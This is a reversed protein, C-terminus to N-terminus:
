CDVVAGFDPWSSAKAVELANAAIKQLRGDDKAMLLSRLAAELAPEGIAADYLRGAERGDLLEATMGVKPVVAPLGYSLALLLSGSTLIKQYPYASIDAARFFLQLESDEIFRGVYLVRSREFPSLGAGDLPNFEAKGALVLRCHPRDALLRRFAAVLTEVGKYPRIQGTFLIVDEEKKIGLSNRAAERGVYDPYAGLYNGHRSIRVKKTPVPFSISVEALSAESHLHVVHACAAIRTSLAAEVQPFLTDHSVTNHVTWILRGGKWIFKELKEAFADAAQKAAKADTIGIFLFNLWHLHFTVNAAATAKSDIVRLAADLDGAVVEVRQRLKGYLLKQYPNSRSYDPWFLVMSTEPRLKYTVNRPKQSDPVHLDWFRSLGQRKLSESQVRHTNTTQHHENVHSTNEGHWRRQYLTEDIHHFEGVESLKLFMDYDVGNVIDERFHSTRAWAQRRFMRFHHAISTVMMKERSFVPWSYEDQTYQGAADIRECSSYACVVAPHEDLYTMLRQVAGPKLCDDSDLQGIYLSNSMRVAANSAYGIGGNPHNSWRVRNEDSYLRELLALTGDPSGDIAICVELDAVDQSLISEVAREIYKAANYAPVYISVKAVESGTALQRTLHSPCLARYLATDADSEREDAFGELVSVCLPVFWAGRVFARYAMEKAALFSSSFRIDPLGASRLLSASVVMNLGAVGNFPDRGAFRKRLTETSYLTNFGNSVPVPVLPMVVTGSIETVHLARQLVMSDLAVRGTVFVVLDCQSVIRALAKQGQVSLLAVTQRELRVEGILKVTSDSDGFVTAAIAGHHVLASLQRTLDAVGTGAALASAVVHVRLASPQVGAALQAASDQLFRYDNGVGVFAPLAMAWPYPKPHASAASLRRFPLLLRANTSGLYDAPTNIHHLTNPSSTPKHLLSEYGSFVAQPLSPHYRLGELVQRAAYLEGQSILQLVAQFSTWINRPDSNMRRLPEILSLDSNRYEMYKPTFVILDTDPM